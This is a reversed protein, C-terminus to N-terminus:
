LKNHDTEEVNETFSNITDEINKQIYSICDKLSDVNGKFSGIADSGDGEIFGNISLENLIKAFETLTGNILDVKKKIQGKINEWDECIVKVDESM